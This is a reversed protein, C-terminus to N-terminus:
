ASLADLEAAARAAGDGPSWRQWGDGGRERARRLLEPWRAPEPWRPAVVALRARSLVAATTRQEGFPRAQPVVVAARRAAAVEAVANQGGHTVVVEAACLADWPDEAWGAWRLNPREDVPEPGMATWTWEPTAAACARLQRPDVDLGGSGWM